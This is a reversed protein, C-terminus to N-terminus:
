TPKRTKFSVIRAAFAKAWAVQEPSLKEAVANLEADTPQNQAPGMDLLDDVKKYAIAYALARSLDVNFFPTNGAYGNM